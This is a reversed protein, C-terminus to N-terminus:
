NKKPNINLEVKDFLVIIKFHGNPTKPLFKNRCISKLIVHYSERRRSQLGKDWIHKQTSFNIGVKNGSM